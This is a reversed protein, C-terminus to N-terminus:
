ISNPLGGVTFTSVLEGGMPTGDVDLVAGSIEIAHERGTRMPDSPELTCTWTDEDYLNAAPVEEGIDDFLLVNDWLSERDVPKSFVVTVTAEADVDVAGHSPLIELVSLYAAPEVPDACGLAILLLAVM